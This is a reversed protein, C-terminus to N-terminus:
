ATGLNRFNAYGSGLPRPESARTLWRYRTRPGIRVPFRQIPPLQLIAGVNSGPLQRNANTALGEVRLNIDPQKWDICARHSDNVEWRRAAGSFYVNVPPLRTRDLCPRALYRLRQFGFDLHPKPEPRQSLLAREAQGTTQRNSSFREPIHVVLRM